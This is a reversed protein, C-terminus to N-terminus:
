RHGHRSNSNAAFWGQRSEAARSEGPPELRLIRRGFDITVSLSKLFSLGALGRVDSGTPHM